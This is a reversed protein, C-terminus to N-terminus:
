TLLDYRLDVNPLKSKNNLDFLAMKYPLNSVLLAVILKDSCYLRCKLQLTFDDVNIIKSASENNFWRTLKLIRKNNSCLAFHRLKTDAHLRFSLNQIQTDFVSLPMRM